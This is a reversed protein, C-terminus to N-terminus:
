ALFREISELIVAVVDVHHHRHEHLPLAPYKVAAVPQAGGVRGPYGGNHRQGTPNADLRKM